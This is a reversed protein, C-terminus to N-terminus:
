WYATTLPSIYVPYGIPVDATSNIINRLAFKMQQISGREHTENGIFVLEHVQGAWLGKVCERNLKITNFKMTKQELQLIFYTPGERQNDEIKKRLSFMQPTEQLLKERWLPDAEDGIFVDKYEDHMLAYLSNPTDVDAAIFQDNYLKLSMRVAPALVHQIITMDGFIWEDNSSTIRFDAKFLQHLKHLFARPTSASHTGDPAAFVRRGALSCIYALKTMNEIQAKTFTLNKEEQRKELFYTFYPSYTTSFETYSIGNHAKDYDEDFRSSFLPDCDVKREPDIASLTQAFPSDASIWYDLEDRQLLFYLLARVYLTIVQKRQDYGSMISEANNEMVNYTTLDLDSRIVQWLYWRYKLAISPKLFQIRDFIRELWPITNSIVEILNRMGPPDERDVIQLIAEQEREQCLTGKFELGRLQFSCIGNGVESFHIMATLADNMVIAVDGATINGFQGRRIAQPLSRQLAVVMHEYFISNLNNADYQSTNRNDLFQSLTINSADKRSTKYSREWFKLARPYAMFFNASGTIPYIPASFAVSVILQAVSFALHPISFIPLVIHYISGWSLPPTSYVIVFNLKLILEDIKLIIWCLVFTDVLLTESRHPMDISFILIQLAIAMWMRSADTFAGRMIRITVVSVLFIAFGPHYKSAALEAAPSISAMVLIIYLGSEIWKLIYSVLEFWAFNFRGLFKNQSWWKPIYPILLPQRFLLWPHHKSMQPILYYVIFGIISISASLVYTIYPNPGRNFVDFIELPLCCIFLTVSILVDISLRKLPFVGMLNHNFDRANKQTMRETSIVKEHKGFRIKINHVIDIIDFLPAYYFHPNSPLRSLFYSLSIALSSFLGSIYDHGFRNKKMESYYGVGILVGTAILDFSFLLIIGILNVAGTGGFLHIHLYELLYMLFTGCHPLWGMCFIIPFCLIIYLSFDRITVMVMFYNFYYGWTTFPHTYLTSLYNTLFAIAAFVTLYFPRSYATWMTYHVPSHADPQSSKVLSFHCSATIVWVFIVALYGTYLDILRYSLWAIFAAFIISWLAEAIHYNRDFLFELTPRDFPINFVYGFIVMKYNNDTPQTAVNHSSSLETISNNDPQSPTVERNQQQENSNNRPSPTISLFQFSDTSQQVHLTNSSSEQPISKGYDREYERRTMQMEYPIRDGNDDYFYLTYTRVEDMDSDESTNEEDVPGDLQPITIDEVAIEMDKGDESIRINDNAVQTVSPESVSTHPHEDPSTVSHPTFNNATSPTPSTLMRHTVTISATGNTNVSITRRKRKVVGRENVNFFYHFYFNPIKIIIFVILIVIPYVIQVIINNREVTFTLIIPLIFFFLWLYLHITNMGLSYHSDFYLGGTLSPVFRKALFRSFAKWMSESDFM